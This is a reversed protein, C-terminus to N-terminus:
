GFFFGSYRHRTEIIVAVGAFNTSKVSAGSASVAPLQGLRV